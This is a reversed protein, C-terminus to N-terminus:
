GRPAGSPDIFRNNKWVSFFLNARQNPVAAGLIGLETGPTVFDGVDVTLDDNGGYVYIYGDANQVFVVRGFASYPGAYIVRGSSISWVPDGVQGEIVIGPLKGDMPARPGPHPWQSGVERPNITAAVRPFSTRTTVPAVEEVAQPVYLYDGVRLLTSESRENMDLLEDVSIGYRRAIGYYTDGPKVTYQGPVLLVTGVSLETPDAISNIDVLTDVSVNYRRAISYLTEGRQMTHRLPEANLPLTLIIALFLVRVTKDM